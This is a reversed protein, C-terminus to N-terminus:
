SLGNLKEQFTFKVEKDPFETATVGLLPFNLRKALREAFDQSAPGAM